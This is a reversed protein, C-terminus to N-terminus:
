MQLRSLDSLNVEKFFFDTRVIVIKILPLNICLLDQTDLMEAERGMSQVVQKRLYAKNFKCTLM